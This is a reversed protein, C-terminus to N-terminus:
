RVAFQERAADKLYEQELEILAEMSVTDGKARYEAMLKEAEAKRAQITVLDHEDSEVMDAIISLAKGDTQLVGGGLVFATEKKEYRITVVCPVIAAIIPMHDPLITMVGESTTISVSELADTKLITGSLSTLTLKM